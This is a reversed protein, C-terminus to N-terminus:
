PSNNKGAEQQRVGAEFNAIILYDGTCATSEQQAATGAANSVRLGFSAQNNNLEDTNAGLIPTIATTFCIACFNVERRFCMTYCQSSLHTAVISFALKGVQTIRLIQKEDKRVQPDLLPHRLQSTIAQFLEQLGLLTSFAVM